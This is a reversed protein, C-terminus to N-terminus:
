VLLLIQFMRNPSINQVPTIKGITDYSVINIYFSRKIILHTGQVLVVSCNLSFAELHFTPDVLVEYQGGWSSCNQPCKTSWSTEFPL